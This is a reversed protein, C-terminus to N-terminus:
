SWDQVLNAAEIARALNVLVQINPTFPTEIREKHEALSATANTSWRRLASVFGSHADDTTKRLISAWLAAERVYDIYLNQEEEVFIKANNDNSFSSELLAEMPEFELSEIREKSQCLMRQLGAVVLERSRGFHEILYDVLWHSAALPCLEGCSEAGDDIESVSAISSVISAGIYRIEEDDDNLSDYLLLYVPLLDHSQNVADLM